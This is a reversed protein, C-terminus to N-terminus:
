AERKAEPNARFVVAYLFMVVFCIAPVFFSARLAADSTKLNDDWAFSFDKVLSFFASDKAGMVAAMMPVIVAGGLIAMIMGPGGLKFCRADLGGLAMGYITPFIISMFANILLLCVVNASFPLGGVTFLTNSSLYVVGLTSALGGLCFVAMIKWPQIWKMSYTAAWCVLIFCVIELIYYNAAQEMTVGVTKMCYVNTYTWTGLQMGVYAFLAIVGLVYRPVRILSLFSARYERLILVCSFPGIMGCLMKYLLNMQPFLCCVAVLPLATLAVAGGVHMLRVSMPSVHGREEEMRTVIPTRLFYFWIALMVVCLGVYPVCVWFLENHVIERLAAPDMVQREPVTAPNLNALIVKQAIFIGVLSGVPNMVQAFNLRRIASKADGMALMCSNSSAELIACGGAVIFIGVLYFEFSQNLCAPIYMLAGLVYVGLGILVGARFSFEQVLISTFLALVAYAGYFAVQVLASTEQKQMFIRQFSPVLNDTMNNVLGWLAFCSVLLALTLKSNKM